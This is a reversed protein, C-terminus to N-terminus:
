LKHKFIEETTQRVEHKLPTCEFYKERASFFTKRRVGSVGVRREVICTFHLAFASDLKNASQQAAAKVRRQMEFAIAFIRCGRGWKTALLQRQHGAALKKKFFKAYDPIIRIKASSFM